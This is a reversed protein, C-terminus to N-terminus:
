INMWFYSQFERKKRIREPKNNLFHCITYYYFSSRLFADPFLPQSRELIIKQFPFGSKELIVGVKEGAISNTNRDAVLLIKGSYGALFIPLRRLAGAEVITKISSEMKNIKTKDMTHM